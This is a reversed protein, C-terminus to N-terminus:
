TVIAAIVLVVTFTVGIALWLRWGYPDIRM